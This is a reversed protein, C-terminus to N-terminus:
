AINCILLVPCCETEAEDNHKPDDLGPGAKAAKGPTM